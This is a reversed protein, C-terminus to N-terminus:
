SRRLYEGVFELILKNLLVRKSLEDLIFAMLLGSCGCSRGSSGLLDISEKWFSSDRAVAVFASVVTLLLFDIFRFVLRSLKLDSSKLKFDNYEPSRLLCGFLSEWFVISLGVAFIM